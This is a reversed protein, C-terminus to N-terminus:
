FRELKFWRKNYRSTLLRKKIHKWLKHKQAEDFVSQYFNIQSPTLQFANQLQAFSNISFSTFLEAFFEKSKSTNLRESYISQMLLLHEKIVVEKNRSIQQTVQGEAGDFVNILAQPIYIFDRHKKLYRIYFEVDVLWQYRTDYMLHEDRKYFTVSPAGICNKFLLFEPIELLRQGQTKTTAHISTVEDSGFSILSQCFFFSTQPNKKATEVFTKLADKGLFRDDHHLVKIYEGKAMSIAKNWNEPSGLSPQNRVYTYRIDKLFDRVFNEISDDPTDDSIILEYDTFSQKLVSELCRKLFSANKYCPICISVFAAM